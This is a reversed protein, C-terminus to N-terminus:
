RSSKEETKGPNKKLFRSRMQQRSQIVLLIFLVLVVGSMGILFHNQRALNTVFRYYVNRKYDFKEEPESHKYVNFQQEGNVLLTNRDWSISKEGNLFLNQEMDWLGQMPIPSDKVVNIVAFIERATMTDPNLYVATSCRAVHSVGTEDLELAPVIQRSMLDMYGDMDYESVSHVTFADLDSFFLTRSRGLISLIDENFLWESPVEMGLLWVGNNLYNLAATTLREALVEADIGTQIIPSHLIVAGGNAQAYRLVECFRQMAPYDAYEYIPMVSIVFKMKLNVMYEVISKLLLPDTFPFVEDLVIYESYTHLGSDWEWLWQTIEHLLIARAFNTTYDTLAIYRVKDKGSVLPVSKASTDLIGNKYVANVITGTNLLEVSSRFTLNDDFTYEAAGIQKGRLDPDAQLGFHEMGAAQGLIMLYGNYGSLLGPDMRDSENAACWIVKDFDGILEAAQETEAWEARYHLSFLVQALASLNDARGRRVSEEPYIVLIEERNQATLKEEAKVERIQMFLMGIVLLCLPVRDYKM